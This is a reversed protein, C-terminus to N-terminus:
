SALIEPKYPLRDLIIMTMRKSSKLQATSLLNAGMLSMSSGLPPTVQFDVFARSGGELAIKWKNERVRSGRKRARAPIMTINHRPM